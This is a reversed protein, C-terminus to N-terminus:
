RAVPAASRELAPYYLGMTVARAAMFLTFSLWLGHNGFAPVLLWAAALFCILSLVMANRMAATRTAGIFVGDLLFSWVSVLPSLIIWWLYDEAFQRVAAIDTFLAIIAQGAVIFFLSLLLAAGLSWLGCVLVAQRFTRRNKAGYAGGVLIEAAHALGDLGHSIITQFQLLVANGALTLDGLGAGQSTFVGFALLLMITRLFIDANVKFLALLRGRDMLRTLDQGGFVQGGPLRGLSHLVITAGLLAASVEAILTAWAVGAVGWGFGLVFILDLVINIGNLVIQLVLATRARQVGLLWGLVTFNALTAPASWVRVDFYVATEGSVAASADVAWLAFIRVPAQLLIILLGFVAALALPRLLAARLEATDGAGFAQATFGTTGMRLFGFGWFLFSFILSGVAVGGIFRPDPLHGVVATDVAGLLPTTLNALMIPGALKWVRRHWDGSQDGPRGGGAGSRGAAPQGASARESPPRDPTETM